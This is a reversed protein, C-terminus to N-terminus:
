VCSVVVEGDLGAEPGGETSGQREGRGVRAGEEGKYSGVREAEAPGAVLTSSSTEVVPAAGAAGAALTVGATGIVLAAGAALSTGAGEDPVEGV